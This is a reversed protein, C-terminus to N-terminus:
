KEDINRANIVSIIAPKLVEDLFKDYTIHQRKILNQPVVAKYDGGIHVQEDPDRKAPNIESNLQGITHLVKIREVFETMNDPYHHEKADERNYDSMDVAFLSYHDAENVSKDLQCASMTVSDASVWRSKVEIYYVVQNNVVIEIDQGGQEDAVEVKLNCEELEASLERRLYEEVFKGLEEKKKFDKAENQKSIWAQRGLNWIDMMHDDNIIEAAKNLRAKDKVKMIRIMPERNDANLVLKMLLSPVDNHITEFAIQWLKGDTTDEFMNIIDMIENKHAYHDIDLYYQGSALIQAMIDKGFLVVEKISETDAVLGYDKDFLSARCNVLKEETSAISDHIDKMKEPIGGDKCLQECYNYEGTQSKYVCYNKLIAKFDSYAFIISVLQLLWEDNLRKVDDDLLTYELLIDNILTRLAGRWEYTNNDISDNFLFDVGYYETISNLM